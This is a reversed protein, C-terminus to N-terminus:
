EKLDLAGDGGTQDGATYYVMQEPREEYDTGMRLPSFLDKTCCGGKLVGRYRKLSVSYDAEM